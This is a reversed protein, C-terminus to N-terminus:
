AGARGAALAPPRTSRTTRQGPGRRSAPLRRATRGPARAAPARELCTLMRDKVCATGMDHLACKFAHSPHLGRPLRSSTSEGQNAGWCAPSAEKCGEKAAVGCVDEGAPCLGCLCPGPLRTEPAPRQPAPQGGVEGGGQVLRSVQRWAPGTLTSGPCRSDFPKTTRKRPTRCRCAVAQKTLWARNRGREPLEEGSTTCTRWVVMLAACVCAAGGPGQQLCRQRGGGRCRRRRQSCAPLANYLQRNSAIIRHM